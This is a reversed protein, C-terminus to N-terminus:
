RQRQIPISEQQLPFSCKKDFALKDQRKKKKREQKFTAHIGWVGIAVLVGSGLVNAVDAPLYNGIVTGVSISLFTGL